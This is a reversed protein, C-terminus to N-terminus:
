EAEVGRPFAGSDGKRRELECETGEIEGEVEVEERVVERSETVSVPLVPPISGDGFFSLLPPRLFNDLGGSYTACGSTEGRGLVASDGLRGVSPPSLSAGVM